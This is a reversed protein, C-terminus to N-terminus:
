RKLTAGPNEEIKMTGQMKDVSSEDRSMATSDRTNKKDKKGFKQENGIGKAGAGLGLSLNELKKAMLEDHSIGRADKKREIVKIIKIFDQAFVDLFLDSM